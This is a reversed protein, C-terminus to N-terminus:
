VLGVYLYDDTVAFDSPIAKNDALQTSHLESGQDPAYGSRPGSLRHGDFVALVPRRQHSAAQDCNGDDNRLEASM